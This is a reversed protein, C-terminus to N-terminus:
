GSIGLGWRATNAVINGVVLIKGKDYGQRIRTM